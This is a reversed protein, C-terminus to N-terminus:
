NRRRFLLGLAGMGLLLASSPEPVAQINDFWVPNDGGNFEVDLALFLVEVTDAPAIAQVQAFVWENVPSASNLLDSEAGPNAVNNNGILVNENPLVIDGGGINRFVIKFLGFSAGAPLATETLMYGSLTFVEGPAAAFSQNVEPVGNVTAATTLQAAFNGEQAGIGPAGVTSAFPNTTWGSFDGTEFGGNALTVAATAPIALLGLAALSAILPKKM